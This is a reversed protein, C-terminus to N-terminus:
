KAGCRLKLRNSAKADIGKRPTEERYVQAAGLHAAKKQGAGPLRDAASIGCTM